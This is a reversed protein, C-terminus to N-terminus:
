NSRSSNLNTAFADPKQGPDSLIFILIPATKAVRQVQATTTIAEYCLCPGRSRDSAGLMSHGDYKGKCSTPPATCSMEEQLFVDIEKVRTKDVGFRRFNAALWTKLKAEDAPGAKDLEALMAAAQSQSLMINDPWVLRYINSKSSNLNRGAEALSVAMLMLTSIVVLTFLRKM